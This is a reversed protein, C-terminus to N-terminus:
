LTLFLLLLSSFGMRIRYAGVPTVTIKTTDKTAPVPTKEEPTPKPTPTPEPEPEPEPIPEPEPPPPVYFEDGCGKESNSYIEIRKESDSCGECAGL